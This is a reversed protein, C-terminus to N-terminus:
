NEYRPISDETGTRIMCTAGEQAESVSKDMDVIVYDSGRGSNM